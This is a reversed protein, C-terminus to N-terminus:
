NKIGILFEAKISSNITTMTDEELGSIYKIWYFGESTVQIDHIVPKSGIYSKGTIHAPRDFYILILSNGEPDVIGGSEYKNQRANIGMTSIRAFKTEKPSVMLDANVQDDRLIRSYKSIKDKYENLPVIVSKSNTIVEFWRPAISAGGFISGPIVGLELALDETSTITMRVDNSINVKTEIKNISQAFSISNVTFM